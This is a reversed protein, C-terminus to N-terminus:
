EPADYIVPIRFSGHYARLASIQGCGPLRRLFVYGLLKDPLRNWADRRPELIPFRMPQGDGPLSGLDVVRLWSSEPPQRAGDTLFAISPASILSVFLFALTYTTTKM